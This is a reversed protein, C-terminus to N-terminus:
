AEGASTKAAAPAPARKAKKTAAMAAAKCSGSCYKVSAWDREWKKRWTIIRSCHECDKAKKYVGRDLVVRDGNSGTSAGGARNGKRSAPAADRLSGRPM